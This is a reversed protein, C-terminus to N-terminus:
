NFLNMAKDRGESILTQIAQSAKKFTKKMMEMESPKFKGLIFNIVAKEGQPKKIKPSAKGASAKASAPSVGIRVRTFEKTKVAKVISDLGRHGGTGKNYSIKLTGIPLDIDDHVVVLNEQSKNKGTKPKLFYSVAAGSKNMFTEPLVLTIKEKGIKDESVLANAKKNIKLDEIKLDKLLRLVAMRGTNHRTNSHEEGPNGLGIIYFMFNQILQYIYYLGGAECVRSRQPRTVLIM